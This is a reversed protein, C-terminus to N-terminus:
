KLLPLTLSDLPLQGAEMPSSAEKGDQLLRPAVYLFPLEKATMPNCDGVRQLSTNAFVITRGYVGGEFWEVWHGGSQNRKSSTTIEFTMSDHGSDRGFDGHMFVQDGEQSYVGNWDPFTDSYWDGRMHTGVAVPPLFCIGQTAMEAHVPSADNFATIAWRNGGKYVNPEFAQATSFAALAVCTVGLALQSTIHRM